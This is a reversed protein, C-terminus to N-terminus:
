PPEDAPLETKFAHGCDRCSLFYLLRFPVTKGADNLRHDVVMRNVQANQSGCQECLVPARVDSM